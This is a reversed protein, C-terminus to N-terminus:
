HPLANAPVTKEVRKLPKTADIRSLWIAGGILAAVVLVWVLMRAMCVRERQTCVMRVGARQGIAVVATYGRGDHGRVGM